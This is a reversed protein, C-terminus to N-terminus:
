TLNYKSKIALSLSPLDGYISFEDVNSLDLRRRLGKIASHRIEISCLCRRSQMADVFGSNKHLTFLGYQNSIRNFDRSCFIPLPLSFPWDCTNNLFCDEYQKETDHSLDFIYMNKAGSGPPNWAGETTFRGLIFPNLFWIRPNQCEGNLAFFLAVNLNTSWDLLRTPIGNHQMLYLKQWSSYHHPILSGARTYFESFIAHERTLNMKSRLLGPELLWSGVRHGRFWCGSKIAM